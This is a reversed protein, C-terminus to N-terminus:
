IEDELTPSSRAQMLVEYKELAQRMLTPVSGVDGPPTAEARTATHWPTAEPTARAASHHAISQHGATYRAPRNSVVSPFAPKAVPHGTKGTTPPASAAPIVSAAAHQSLAATRAPAGGFGLAAAKRAAPVASRARILAESPPIQGNQAPQANASKASAGRDALFAALAPNTASPRSSEITPAPQAGSKATPQAVAQAAKSPELRTAAASAAAVAVGRGDGAVDDAVDGAGDGAPKDGTFLALAKDGIDSGTAEDVIANVLATAFGIVGGFLAGGIVRPAPELKDGTIARYLTGVVPIHHLPNIIDLIDDFGLGDKGFVEATEEVYWIEGEAVADGSEAYVNLEAVREELTPLRVAAPAKASIPAPIPAPAPAIPAGITV